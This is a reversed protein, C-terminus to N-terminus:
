SINRGLSVVIQTTTEADYYLTDQAGATTSLVPKVANVSKWYSGWGSITRNGGGDQTIRIRGQQGEKINIPNNLVVNGTLVLTFNQGLSFDLTLPTTYTVSTAVAANWVTNPGLVKSATNAWYQAATAITSTGLYTAANTTDNSFTSTGGGNGVAIRNDDTDWQLDGETTPAPAASQKLIITGGNGLVNTINDTTEVTVGAATKLVTKYPIDTFYTPAFQGSADAVLPNAALTLGGSDQYITMLTTTGAQYFYLLAGALPAGNISVPQFHSPRFIPLTTM